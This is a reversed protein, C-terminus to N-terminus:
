TAPQSSHVTPVAPAPCSPLRHALAARLPEDAWQQMRQALEDLLQHGTTLSAETPWRTGYWRVPRLGLEGRQSSWRSLELEVTLRHPGRVVTAPATALLHDERLRLPARLRLRGHRAGVRITHGVGPLAIQLAAQAVLPPLPIVRSMYYTVPAEDRIPDTTWM